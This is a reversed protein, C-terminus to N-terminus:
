TRCFSPNYRDPDWGVRNFWNVWHIAGGQVSGSPRLWRLEHRVRYYDHARSPGPPFRYGAGDFVASRTDTAMATRWPGTYLTTYSTENFPSDPDNAVEIAFRWAVRQRDSKGARDVAFAVPRRVHLRTIRPVGASTEYVCRMGPYEGSDILVHVGFTGWHQGDVPAAGAPGPAGSGASAPFPNVGSCYGYQRYSPDAAPSFAYYYPRHEATGAIGEDFWFLKLRLRYWAHAPQAVQFTRATLAANRRDTATAREVRTQDVVSWSGSIPNQDTAELILKWGVSQQDVKRTTDRAYVVPRRGKLRILSKSTPDYICIGGESSM